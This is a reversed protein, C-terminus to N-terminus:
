GSGKGIDHVREIWAHVQAATVGRQQARYLPHEAEYIHVLPRKADPQFRLECELNLSGEYDPIEHMLYSFCIDKEYQGTKFGAEYIRWSDESVSMWVGFRFQRDLEPVPLPLICRIM